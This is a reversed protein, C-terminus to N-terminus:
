RFGGSFIVSPFAGRSVLQAGGLIKKKQGPQNMYLRLQKGKEATVLVVYQDEASRHAYKRRSVLDTLTDYPVCCIERAQVCILAIYTDRSTSSISRLDDLHNARFTFQYENFAPTPESAYKFYVATDENVTYASRVIRNGVKLANIATFMEHEAIQVLAAGHYMHDDDIRM